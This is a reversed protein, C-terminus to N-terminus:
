AVAGLEITFTTGKGLETAVIGSDPEGARANVDNVLFAHIDGSLIVPNKVKRTAIQEVLRARAAPYGNWNDAWYRVEKDLSEDAHAFLTQQAILTFRARSSTLTDGLWKEQATGLMTREGAYLDACPLVLPGNDCAALPLVLVLSLLVRARSM